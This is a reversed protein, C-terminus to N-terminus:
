GSPCGGREAADLVSAGRELLMTTPDGHPSQIELQLQDSGLLRVDAQRDDWDSCSFEQGWSDIRFWYSSAEGGLLVLALGCQEEGDVRQSICGAVSGVPVGENMTAVFEGDASAWM